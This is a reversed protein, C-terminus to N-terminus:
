DFVLTFGLHRGGECCYADEGDTVHAQADSLEEYRVVVANDCIGGVPPVGIM